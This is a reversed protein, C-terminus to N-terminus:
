KCSILHDLSESYMSDHYAVHLANKTLRKMTELAIHYVPVCNSQTTYILKMTIFFFKMTIIIIIIIIIIISFKINFVIQM